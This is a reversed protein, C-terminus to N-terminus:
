TAHAPSVPNQRVLEAHQAPLRQPKSERQARAQTSGPAAHVVWTSQQLWRQVPPRQSVVQLGILPAHVVPLWQQEPAHPLPV